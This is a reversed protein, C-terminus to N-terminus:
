YVTEAGPLHVCAPKPYWSQLGRSWGTVCVTEDTDLMIVLGPDNM